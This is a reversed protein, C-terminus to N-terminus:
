PSGGLATRRQEHVDPGLDRLTGASDWEMGTIVEIWLRIRSPTGAIPEPISWLYSAKTDSTALLPATPSFAGAIVPQHHRLPPGLPQGTAADWLRATRDGGSVFIMRGNPHVTMASVGERFRPLAPGCPQGTRTEIRQLDGRDGLVLVTAADPAFKARGCPMPRQWLQKVGEDPTWSWLWATQHKKDCELWVGRGEPLFALDLVRGEPARTHRCQGSAVDWIRVRSNETLTLLTRGDPSLAARVPWFDHAFEGRQRGSTRDWLRVKRDRCCMLLIQGDANFSLADIGDPHEKISPVPQAAPITWAQVSKDSGDASLLLDGRPSFAISHNAHSGPLRCIPGIEAPLEWLCAKAGSLNDGGASGTLATGGDPSFALSRVAGEHRHPLGIPEGCSVTFLRALGDESGTLLLRGDPSFAATMVGHPHILTQGWKAGTQADWFQAEGGVIPEGPPPPWGPSDYYADGTALLSGDPSFALAPILGRHSLVARTPKARDIDWLRVQGLPPAYPKNRDVPLIGRAVALTKGNPHFALNLVPGPVSKADFLPDGREQGDRPDWLHVRGDRSGTALTRGERSWALALVIESEDQRLEAVCSDAQADWLRATPWSLSVFRDGRGLFAVRQTREGNSWSHLCKGSEIDWLCIEFPGKDTGNDTSTGTLLKTGDPSFDLCYVLKKHRLPEGLQWGTAVDWIRVACEAGAISSGGATAARDGKPSYAVAFIPSNHHLEGRKHVLRHRWASLNSRLVRELDADDAHVAMELARAFSLLGAAIQGQECLANGQHFLDGASLRELEDKAKKQAAERTQASQLQWLLFPFASVVLLFVLAILGAAAPRRRVWKATRELWGVPPADNHAKDPPRPYSETPQPPSLPPLPTSSRSFQNSRLRKRKRRAM